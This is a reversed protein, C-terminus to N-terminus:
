SNSPRPDAGRLFPVSIYLWPLHLPPCRDDDWGQGPSQRCVRGRTSVGADACYSEMGFLHESVLGVCYPSKHM